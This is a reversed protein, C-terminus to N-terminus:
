RVWIDVLHPHYMTYIINSEDTLLYSQMCCVPRLLATTNQELHKSIAKYKIKYKQRHLKVWIDALRSNNITCITHTKGTWLRFRVCRIPRFRATTTSNKTINRTIKFESWQVEVWSTSSDSNVRALCHRHRRHPSKRSWKSDRGTELRGM